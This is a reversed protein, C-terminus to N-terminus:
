EEMTKPAVLKPNHTRKGCSNCKLFKDMPEDCSKLQISSLTTDSSHCNPCEYGNRSKSISYNSELEDSIDSLPIIHPMSLLVDNRYFTNHANEFCQRMELSDGMTSYEYIIHLDVALEGHRLRATKMIDPCRFEDLLVTINKPERGRIM